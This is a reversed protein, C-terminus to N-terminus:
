KGPEHATISTLEGVDLQPEIFQSGVLLEVREIFTSDVDPKRSSQRGITACFELFFVDVRIFEADRQRSRM